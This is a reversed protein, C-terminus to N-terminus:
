LSNGSIWAPPGIQQRLFGNGTVLRQLFRLGRGGKSKKRSRRKKRRKKRKRKKMKKSGRWMKRKGLM